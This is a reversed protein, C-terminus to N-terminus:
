QNVRQQQDKAHYTLAWEVMELAIERSQHQSRGNFSASIGLRVHTVTVGNSAYGASQGGEVPEGAPFYADIRLDKPDIDM